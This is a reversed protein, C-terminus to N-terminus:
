QGERFEANLEDASAKFVGLMTLILFILILDQVEM